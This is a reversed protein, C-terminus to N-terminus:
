NGLIGGEKLNRIPPFSNKTQYLLEGILHEYMNPLVIYKSNSTDENIWLM